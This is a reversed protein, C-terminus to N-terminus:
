TLHDVKCGCGDWMREYTELRQRLKVQAEELNNLRHLVCQKEWNLEQVLFQGNWRMIRIRDSLFTDQDEVVEVLDLLEDLKELPFLLIKEAIAKEIWDKFLKNKEAL